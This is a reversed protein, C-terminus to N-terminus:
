LGRRARRAREGAGGQPHRIAPRAGGFAHATPGAGARCSRFAFLGFGRDGLDGMELVFVPVTL